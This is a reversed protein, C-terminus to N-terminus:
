NYRDSTILNQRHHLYDCWQQALTAITQRDAENNWLESGSLKWQSLLRQLDVLQTALHIDTELNLHPVTWEIFFQSERILHQAIQEDTGSQALTQLRTLNLALSDLQTTQNNQLYHSKLIEWNIAM